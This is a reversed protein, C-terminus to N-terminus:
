KKHEANLISSDVCRPRGNLITQRFINDCFFFPLLFNSAFFVNECSPKIFSCIGCSIQICHSLHFMHDELTNSFSNLFCWKICYSDQLMYFEKDYFITNKSKILKFLLFFILELLLFQINLLCAYKRILIWGTSINRCDCFLWFHGFLTLRLTNNILPMFWESVTPHLALKGKKNNLDKWLSISAMTWLVCM